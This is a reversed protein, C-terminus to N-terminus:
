VPQLLIDLLQCSHELLFYQHENYVGTDSGELMLLLSALSWYLDKSVTHVNYYNVIVQLYQLKALKNNALTLLKRKTM